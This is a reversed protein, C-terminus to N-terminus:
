ISVKRLHPISVTWARSGRVTARIEVNDAAETIEIRRAVRHPAAFSSSGFGEAFWTRSAFDSVIDILLASGSISISGHNEFGISLSLEYIGPDLRVYPGYLLIGESGDKQTYGPEGLVDSEDGIVSAYRSTAIEIEGKRRTEKLGLAAAKTFITAHKSDQATAIGIEGGGHGGTFFTLRMGNREFCDRIFDHSWGSEFWGMSRAVFLSEHDLRLGWNKWVASQIPEGTFGIVGDPKLKSKLTAVLDWPRLCHHLSQFFFAADYRGDELTEADDFNLDSRKIDFGRAESRRRSLEGLAPDIDIAHVKCAAFAYIESSVGHGAGMDLIEAQQGLSSLALMTSLARVDEAMHEVSFIGIPNPANLLSDVNVPHLEGDQQSLARGSIEQYLNLQGQFYEDSYPSLSQDVVADYAIEVPLYKAALWPDTFDEQVSKVDSVFQSLQSTHLRPM